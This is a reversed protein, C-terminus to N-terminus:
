SVIVLFYHVFGEHALPRALNTEFGEHARQNTHALHKLAEPFLRRQFSYDNSSRAENLASGHLNFRFAANNFVLLHASRRYADIQALGAHVAKKKTM